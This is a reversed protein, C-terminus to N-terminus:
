VNLGKLDGENRVAPKVLLLYSNSLLGTDLKVPILSPKEVEPIICRAIPGAMNKLPEVAPYNWSLIEEAGVTITLQGPNVSMPKDNLLWIDLSILEGSHWVFKDFRASILTPRCANKVAQYAPKPKGNHQIISNNASTPWPENYCWNLAMSCYPKQRRAEEYIYQYGIGQLMQGKEVLEELTKFEGFYEQLMNLCLWTDGVWANFAHHQEWSAGPQPPFLETEPIIEKLVDVDSPGPMGFEPYATNKAENMLKMVERGNDMDRFVYHGHGMGMLPSTAIFPIEPSFEYCLHNLLRLAASQDDMGSWDNFLENGGCWLALCAHNRLNKIISIAEQELIKLYHSSGEYPNCALIFDQWILLGAEDCKEYFYKKNVIAGGWVRLINFNAEVALDILQDYHNNTITGYFIDPNVWNTGKAFIARNNIRFTAPAVSRSKPFESPEEWSGLNMVLEVKRFGIKKLVKRENVLLEAQYLYPMGQDHPWWLKVESISGKLVPDENLVGEESFVVKGEHDKVTFDFVAGVLNNGLAKLDFAVSQLDDSLQYKFNFDELWTVDRIELFTEDWIGLPILRPHWDWGYSVPPKVTQNAQIRHDPGDTFKPAPAIRILLENEDTLCDSINVHIPTFMGEQHHIMDGNIFIEFHYDIGLSILWLEQGPAIEPRSFRVRYTWWQDEMWRYQKVNEGINYDPLGLHKAADLQVAGPVIAPFFIPEEDKQQHYGVEWNALQISAM